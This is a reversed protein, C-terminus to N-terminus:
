TKTPRTASSAPRACGSSSRSSTAPPTKVRLEYVRGRPQKLADIPGAAAIAGKDM